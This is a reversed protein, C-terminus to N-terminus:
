SALAIAIGLALVVTLPVQVFLILSSNGLATWFNPDRLMRAYNSLGAFGGGEALPKSFSLALSRLMPYLMFLTFLLGVPALM